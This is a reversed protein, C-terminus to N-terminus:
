ITPLQLKKYMNFEQLASTINDIGLRSRLRIRRISTSPISLCSQSNIRRCGM